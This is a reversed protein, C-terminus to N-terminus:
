LYRCVVNWIDLPAKITNNYRWLTALNMVEVNYNIYYRDYDRAWVLLTVNDYGTLIAYDYKDDIIPGVKRISLSKTAMSDVLALNCINNVCDNNEFIYNTTIKNPNYYVSHIFPSKSVQVNTINDNKILNVKIGTCFWDIESTTQVYHNNKVQLWTGAFKNIDFDDIDKNIINTGIKFLLSRDDDIPSDDNATDYNATDDDATINFTTNSNITINFTDDYTTVNTNSTINFTIVDNSTVNYSTSDNPTIYLTNTSIHSTTNINYIRIYAAQTFISINLLWFIIKKFM